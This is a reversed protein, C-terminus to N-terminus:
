RRAHVRNEYEDIKSCVLTRTADDVLTAANLFGAKLRPGDFGEAATLIPTMKASLMVEGTDIMNHSFGEAETWTLAHEDSQKDYSLQFGLLSSLSDDEYWIVLDMDDDAFWKRFGEDKIQRVGRIEYLMSDTDVRRRPM